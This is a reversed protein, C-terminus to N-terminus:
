GFAAQLVDDLEDATNAVRDLNRAAEEIDLGAIERSVEVWAEDHETIFFKVGVRTYAEELLKRYFAERNVTPVKTLFGQIYMYWDVSDDDYHIHFFGIYIPASGKTATWYDGEEEYCEDPDLGVNSLMQKVMDRYPTLDFDGNGM